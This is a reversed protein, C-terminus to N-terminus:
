SKFGYTHIIKYEKKCIYNLLELYDLYNSATVTSCRKDEPRKFIISYTM